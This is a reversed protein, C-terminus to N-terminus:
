QIAFLTLLHRMQLFKAPLSLRSLVLSDKTAEDLAAGPRVNQLLPRFTEAVIISGLTGLRAGPRPRQFWPEILVYTWLPTRTDLGWQQLVGGIPHSELQAPTLVRLQNRAVYAPHHHDLYRIISQADPLDQEISALLDREVLNLYDPPDERVAALAPTLNTSISRATQFVPDSGRNVLEFFFRWAIQSSPRESTDALGRAQAHNVIRGLPIFQYRDNLHYDRRVLSHGFRYAAASFERPIALPRGDSLFPFHPPPDDHLRWVTDDLIRKLYDYWVVCQYLFTLEKRAADYPDSDGAHELVLANHLRMFLVHIQAVIFNDDNREDPIHPAFTTASRPVDLLGSGRVGFRFTGNANMAVAPDRRSDGYLSDLDLAPTTGQKISARFGHSPPTIDHDVFQGLYTYGAPLGAENPFAPRLQAEALARLAQVDFDTGAIPFLRPPLTRSLSTTNM